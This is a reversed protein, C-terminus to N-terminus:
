TAAALRQLGRGALFALPPLLLCTLSFGTPQGDTLLSLALPLLAVWDLLPLGALLASVQARPTKGFRTACLALWGALPLLGLLGCHPLKVAYGGAMLLGALGLLCRALWSPAASAPALAEGRAVWSLGAVYCLIALAHPAIVAVEMRTQALAHTLDPKACSLPWEIFFLLPLLARCMAVLLISAPIRKHWRTYSVICLGIALAVLASGAGVCGALAVAVTGCAIALGLYYAPTFAAQPLAREPRHRGDWHRDYWDNLFNGSVYLLCGASGLLAAAPWPSAASRWQKGVEMGLAVGLWVNSVVSPLNALRASTLLLQLKSRPPM